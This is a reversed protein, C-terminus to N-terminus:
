ILLVTSRLCRLLRALDPPPHFQPILQVPSTAVFSDPAAFHVAGFGTQNSPSIVPQSDRILSPASSFQLVHDPNALRTPTAFWTLVRAVAHHQHEACGGEHRLVLRMGDAGPQIIAHHDADLTGLLSTAAVGVPSFILVYLLLGCWGAFQHRIDRRHSPCRNMGIRSCNSRRESKSM